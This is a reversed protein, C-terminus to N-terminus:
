SAYLTETAKLIALRVREPDPAPKPETYLSLVELRDKL